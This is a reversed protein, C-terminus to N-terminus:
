PLSNNPQFLPEGLPTTKDGWSVNPLILLCTQNTYHVSLTCGADLQYLGWISHLVRYQVPCDQLLSNTMQGAIDTTSARLFTPHSQNENAGSRQCFIKSKFTTKEQLTVISISPIKGEYKDLLHLYHLLVLCLYSYKFIVNQFFREIEFEKM